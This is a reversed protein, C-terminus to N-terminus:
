LSIGSCDLRGIDFGKVIIMSGPHDLRRALGDDTAGRVQVLWGLARPEPAQTRGITAGAERRPERSTVHDLPDPQPACRFDRDHAVRCPQGHRAREHAGAGPLFASATRRPFPQQQLFRTAGSPSPWLNRDRRPSALAQPGGRGRTYKAASCCLSQSARIHRFNAANSAIQLVQARGSPRVRQLRATRRGGGAGSASTAKSGLGPVRRM